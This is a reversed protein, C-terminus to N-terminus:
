RGWRKRKGSYIPRRKRGERPNESKEKADEEEKKTATITFSHTDDDKVPDAEIDWEDMVRLSNDIMRSIAKEQRRKIEEAEPLNASQEVKPQTKIGKFYNYMSDYEEETNMNFVHGCRINPCELLITGDLLEHVKVKTFNTKNNPTYGLKGAIALTHKYDRGTFVDMKMINEHIDGGHWKMNCSPCSGLKDLM